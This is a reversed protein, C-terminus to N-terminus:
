SVAISPRERAIEWKSPPDRRAVEFTTPEPADNPSLRRSSPLEPQSLRVGWRNATPRTKRATEYGTGRGLSLCDIGNTCKQFMPEAVGADRRGGASRSRSTAARRLDISFALCGGAYYALGRVFPAGGTSGPLAVITPACSAGALAFHRVASIMPNAARNADHACRSRAGCPAPERAARPHHRLVAPSRSRM